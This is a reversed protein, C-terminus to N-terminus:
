HYRLSSVLFGITLQFCWFSPDLVTNQKGISPKGGIYLACKSVKEIICLNPPFSMPVCQFGEKASWLPYFIGLPSSFKQPTWWILGHSGTLSWVLPRFRKQPLFRLATDTIVDTLHACSLRSIMCAMWGGSSIASGLGSREERKQAMAYMWSRATNWSLEGFTVHSGPLYSVSM